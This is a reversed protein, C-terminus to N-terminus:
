YKYSGNAAALRRQTSKLNNLIDLYGESETFSPQRTVQPALSEFARSLHPDKKSDVLLSSDIVRPQTEGLSREINRYYKLYSVDEAPDVNVHKKDMATEPIGKFHKDYQMKETFNSVPNGSTKLCGTSKDGLNSMTIYNQDLSGYGGTLAAERSRDHTLYCERALNAIDGLKGNISSIVKAVDDDLCAEEDLTGFMRDESELDVIDIKQSSSNNQSVGLKIQNGFRINKISDSSDESLNLLTNSNYNKKSCGRADNLELNALLKPNENKKIDFNIVEREHKINSILMQCLNELAARKTSTDAGKKRRCRSDEPQKIPTKELPNDLSQQCNQCLKCKENSTNSIHAAKAKNIPLVSKPYKNEKEVATKMPTKLQDRGMLTSGKLPSKGFILSVDTQFRDIARKAIDSYDTHTASIRERNHVPTICRNPGPTDKPMEKLLRSADSTHCERNRTIPSIARTVKFYSERDLFYSGNQEPAGYNETETTLLIVVIIEEYM